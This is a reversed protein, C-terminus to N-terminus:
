CLLVLGTSSKKGGVGPAGGEERGDGSMKSKPSCDPSCHLGLGRPHKGKPLEVNTIESM